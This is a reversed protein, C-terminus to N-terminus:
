TTRADATFVFSESHAIQVDVNYVMRIEVANQAWANGGINTALIELNGWVGLLLQSWDACYVETCDTSSGKTLNTPIQTTTKMPYGLMDDLQSASIIPPVIYSGDTQGSFNPIRERRMLWSAKPHTVFGVKDGLANASDLLALAQSAFDFTYRGGNTGIALTQIGPVNAVGLPQNSTGSGRLAVRDFELAAMNTMVKRLYTEFSPSSLLNALNSVQMRAVMTKPTLQVQGFTADSTTINANQGVWYVTGNGTQKPVQFPSGSLAEFVTAGANRTALKPLLMSIIESSYEVPIVYGGGSGGTGSDLAKKTAQQLVEKEFGAGIQDWMNQGLAQHSAGAIAKAFSFKSKGLNVGPLSVGLGQGRREKLYDEIAMTRGDLTNVMDTMQKSASELDLVRTEVAKQASVMGEVGKRVQQLAEINMECGEEQMPGTSLTPNNNDDDVVAIGVTPTPSMTMAGHVALPGLVM